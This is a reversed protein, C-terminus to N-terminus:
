NAYVCRQPAGAGTANLCIAKNLTPGPAGGLPRSFPSCCPQNANVSCLTGLFGPAGGRLGCHRLPNGNQNVTGALLLAQLLANDPGGIGASSETNDYNGCASTGATGCNNQSINRAPIPPIAAPNGLAVQMMANDPGGIGVPGQNYDFDCRNGRGDVDDDLQGRYVGGAIGGGTRHRNATSSAVPWAPNPLDSCNDCANDVGDGDPDGINFVTPCTDLEDPIGDGDLEFINACEKVRNQCPGNAGGACDSDLVCRAGGIACAGVMPCTMGEVIASFDTNQAGFPAGIDIDIGTLGGITYVIPLNPSVGGPRGVKARGAVARVAPAGGISATIAVDDAGTSLDTCDDGTCKNQVTLGLADNCPNANPFQSGGAVESNDGICGVVRNAGPGWGAARMFATTPPQTGQTGALWTLAGAGNVSTNARANGFTTNKTTLINGGGNCCAAGPPPDVPFIKGAAYTGGSLAVGPVGPEAIGIQGTGVVARGFVADDNGAVDLDVVQSAVKGTTAIFALPVAVERSPPVVGGPPNPMPSIIGIRGLVDDGSGAGNCKPDLELERFGYTNYGPPLGLPNPGPVEPYYAVGAAPGGADVDAGCTSGPCDGNVRCALGLNAGGICAGVAVPGFCANCVQGVPCDTHANTGNDLPDCPQSGLGTGSACRGVYQQCDLDTVCALGTTGCEGAVTSGCTACVVAADGGMFCRMDPMNASAWTNSEISVIAVTDGAGAQPGTTYDFAMQAGAEVDILQAAEITMQELTDLDYDLGTIPPSDPQLDGDVDLPNVAAGPLFQGAPINQTWIYGLTDITTQHGYLTRNCVGGGTCTPGDICPTGPNGGGVCLGKVPQNNWWDPNGPVGKAPAFFYYTAPGNSSVPAGSVDQDGYPIDQWYSDGKLQIRRIGGRAPEAAGIDYVQTISLDVIPTIIPTAGLGVTDGFGPQRQAGQVVPPNEFGSRPGSLLQGAGRGANTGTGSGGGFNIATSLGGHLSPAFSYLGDGDSCVGSTGCITSEFDAGATNTGQCACAADNTVLNCTGGVIACEPNGTCGINANNACFGAGNPWLCALKAPESTTSSCRFEPVRALDCAVGTACLAGTRNRCGALTVTTGATCTGPAICGTQGPVGPNCAAGPNGGGACTGVTASCAGVPSIDAINNSRTLGEGGGAGEYPYFVASAPQAALVVCLALAFRIARM